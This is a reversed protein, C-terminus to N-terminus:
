FDPKLRIISIMDRPIDVLNDDQNLLSIEEETFGQLVGIIKRPGSYAQLTKVKIRAGKFRLLDRDTKIVRDLGPSSVEMHDYEVQAEDVLDKVARSAASCSELDVGEERDIFIRLIRDGDERKYEIEVLELGLKALPEAVLSELLAAKNMNM